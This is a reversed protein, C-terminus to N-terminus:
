SRNLPLSMCRPGGRGRVLESGEIEIVEVGSQKLIRNTAQNRNYVVVVGPSVALTNTSDAWQERAATIADAGGSHILEVDGTGLCAALAQRLSDLAEAKVRGQRGRTLRYVQLQKLIGPYILFKDHDVMTFVTDLHMFSRRAPIQVVLVTDLEETEVLFHHALREVAEETTRESLGVCISRDHLVTVDGGELGVSPNDIEWRQLRQETFLRHYQQLMRLFITERKRATNFMSAIVLQRGLVFGHDRTFYTSPLPDLYFPYSDATLDSLTRYTKFQAVDKKALGATLMTLTERHSLQLLYDNVAQRVDPNALRTYALHEQIAQKKVGPLEFIDEMLDLLYHVHVGRQRLVEAFGAHEQQARELWPIEDFLLRELYRPVLNELEQGPRHLVVSKLPDTESVIQWLSIVGEM